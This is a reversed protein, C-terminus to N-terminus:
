KFLFRSYWKAKKAQRKLLDYVTTLGALYGKKYQESNEKSELTELVFDALGPNELMMKECVENSKQKFKKEKRTKRVNKRHEKVTEETIIPLSM